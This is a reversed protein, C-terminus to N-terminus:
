NLGTGSPQYVFRFTFYRSLSTVDPTAPADKYYSIIEMKAYKGDHTKVVYVKGPTPSIINTTSNYTYWGKGSGIPIAYLAESTGDQKFILSEATAVETFIGDVTSVGGSGTRTPEDAIGIATGGNVLITTGRFAIDWSDDTVIENKSFCFKTFSGAVPQGQGGSQPASLNAYTQVKLTTPLIETKKIQEEKSCNIFFSFLMFLFIPKSLNLYNM